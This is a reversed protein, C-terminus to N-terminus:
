RPWDMVRYKLFDGIKAAVQCHVKNRGYTTVHEGGDDGVARAIVIVQDYGYTKAIKEAASIPIPKM